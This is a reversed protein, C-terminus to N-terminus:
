IRYLICSISTVLSTVICKGGSEISDRYKPASIIYIVNKKLIKIRSTNRNSIATAIKKNKTKLELGHFFLLIICKIYLSNCYFCM